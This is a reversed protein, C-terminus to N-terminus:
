QGTFPADHEYRREIKLSLHGLRGWIRSVAVCRNRKYLGAKSYNSKIICVNSMFVTAPSM